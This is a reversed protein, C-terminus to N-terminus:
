KTINKKMENVLQASNEVREFLIMTDQIIQRTEEVLSDLKQFTTKKTRTWKQLFHSFFITHNTFKYPFYIFSTTMTDNKNTIVVAFRTDNEGTLFTNVYEGISLTASQTCGISINKRQLPHKLLNKLM